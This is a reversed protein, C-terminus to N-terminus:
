NNGGPKLSDLRRREREAAAQEREAREILFAKLIDVPIYRRRGVRIPAPLEGREIMREISRSTTNLQKALVDLTLMEFAVPPTDWPLLGNLWLTFSPFFDKFEITAQWQEYTWGHRYAALALTLLRTFTHTNSDLLCVRARAETYDQASPVFPPFNQGTPKTKVQPATHGIISM